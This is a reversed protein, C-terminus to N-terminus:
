LNTDRYPMQLTRKGSSWLSITGGGDIIGAIYAADTPNLNLTKKYNAM